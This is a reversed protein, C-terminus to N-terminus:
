IAELRSLRRDVARLQRVWLPDASAAQSGILSTVVEGGKPTATLTAARVVEAVEVGPVPEVSVIDGLDFDVGYRQDETDVTVTALRATEAGDALAEDGAQDLETDDSSDRRDVFSEIRWWAAIAAANLRERIERADGEGAGGIIAATLRPADLDYEVGRLNGLGWSFRVEGSLDQPDYVLFQIDDGVQTTRFGLGGGALAVSRLADCLPEWRTRFNVAVGVGADAGLVLQPVERVTLAGPGANLDVLSRMVDEANTASATWYAPQSTSTAVLTPDPYTVRGAVLALDEAWNVTVAGPFTDVTRKFVRKELPGALFTQGDRILLIRHGPELLDMVAPKAPAVFEGSGVENFRRTAEIGTWCDIEGVVELTPDTVLLTLAM